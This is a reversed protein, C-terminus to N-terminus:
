NVSIVQPNCCKFRYVTDKMLHEPKCDFVSINALVWGVIQHALDFLCVVDVSRLSLRQRNGLLSQEYIEQLTRWLISMPIGYKSYHKAGTHSDTLYRAQTPTIYVKFFSDDVDIVRKNIIVSSISVAALKSNIRWFGFVAFAFYRHHIDNLICKKFFLLELFFITNRTPYGNLTIRIENEYVTKTIGLMLSRKVFGQSSDDSIAVIM